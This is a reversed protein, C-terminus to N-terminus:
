LSVQVGATITRLPPLTTISQVEPDFGKYKTFTLLNQGQLYIRLNNIRMRNKWKDPISVSMSVNKLRIFSADTYAADSNKYYNRFVMAPSGSSLSSFKAYSKEDGPKQWQNGYLEAMQNFRSGGPYAASQFIPNIGKQKCFQFFIDLTLNKFTISNSLGGYFRPLTNIRIDKGYKPFENTQPNEVNEGKNNKFTYLGNEPNVGASRYVDVFGYFPQGELVDKGLSYSGIDLYKILKNRNTTLNFTSNWTLKKKKVNSTNISFEFGTNQILTPLNTILDGYGALNPYPYNLLQNGSRNRFYNASLLIRDKLFGLDLAVEMKRTTEWHYSPNFLGSSMYGKIGQYGNVNGVPQYLEIYKYDGIGDNGSTGYSFRLKAFSLSNFRKKIFEEESFIWAAGVSGFNGFQNNPGFRSSGDRRLNVNVLYRNALNYTLRSFIANYKYQNTTNGKGNIITAADLSQILADSPFGSVSIYETKSTASQLAGGLLINITGYFLKSNFSVQPEISMSTNSNNGHEASRIEDGLIMVVSPNFSSSPIGIFSSGSLDNYGANVKFNLKWLQYNMQIATTLNNVSAQYKRMLEASYPDSAWTSADGTQTYLAWNVTGDLNYASPANPELSLAKQTFDVAPIRNRNTMYSATFVVGFKKNASNGSLSIHGGGKIDANQGPFVTTEKHYNGGVIYQMLDSGGSISTQIDTYQANGGILIDQWNTYRDQDWLMLDPYLISYAPNSLRDILGDNKLGEKRMALYQHTDMLDIRKAVQSVGKQFNFDLRPAGIKGKKTTILVVGNGGRSGYIATADADKLVTISEIDNPNIFNLASMDALTGNGRLGPITNSYPLGDIVILPDASGAEARLTNRGRIQISITKGPVGGSPTIEVGPVRGQLAYLPNNVPQKEIEEAGINISSGTTLRRTTSGYPIVVIEDLEGVKGKLLIRGIARRGKVAVEETLYSVNSVVISANAKIDNLVFDGNTATITGVKGGKVQVTAGIVPEGKEDVVKGTVTITSVTDMEVKGEERELKKKVAITNESVEVWSFGREDLLEHLVSEVPKNKADLSVNRHGALDADQFYIYLGSKKSVQRLVEALSSNKITLSVPKGQAPAAYVRQQLCFLVVMCCYLFVRHLKVIKQM